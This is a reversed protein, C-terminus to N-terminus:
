VFELWSLATLALCRPAFVVEVDLKELVIWLVLWARSRCWRLGALDMSLWLNCHEFLFDVDFYVLLLILKSAIKEAWMGSCFCYGKVKVGGLFDNM